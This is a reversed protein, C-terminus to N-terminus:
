QRLRCRFYLGSFVLYRAPVLLLVLMRLLTFISMAIPHPASPTPPSLPQAQSVQLSQREIDHYLLGRQLVSVLAHHKVHPAFDLHQPEETKWERQLSLATEPFDLASRTLVGPCNVTAAPVYKVRAPVKPHPNSTLRCSNYRFRGPMQFCSSPFV